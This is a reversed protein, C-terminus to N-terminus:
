LSRVEDPQGEEDNAPAPSTPLHTPGKPGAKARLHGGRRRASYVTSLAIVLLVIGAGLLSFGRYNQFAIAVYGILPVSWRVRYVFNGRISVTWPDRVTNADGQTNILIQGSSSKSLHVIRHVVQETPKNPERFVIVDRVALRDVPVRESIAVGGVALGPRMSGSLVPTVMWTGRVLAIAAAGALALIAVLVVAEVTTILRKAM